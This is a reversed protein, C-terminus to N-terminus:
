LCWVVMSDKLVMVAAVASISDSEETVGKTGVLVKVFHDVLRVM